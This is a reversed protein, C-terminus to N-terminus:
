VGVSERPDESGRRRAPGGDGNAGYLPGFKQQFRALLEQRTPLGARAGLAGLSFGAATHGLAGCMRLSYEHVIGFLFGAAFADGAGTTDAITGEHTARAPVTHEIFEPGRKTKRRTVILSAAVEHGGEQRRGEGFTVVVM